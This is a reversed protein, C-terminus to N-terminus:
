SWYYTFVGANTKCKSCGSNIWSGMEIVLTWSPTEKDKGPVITLNWIPIKRELKERKRGM